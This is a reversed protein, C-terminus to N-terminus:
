KLEREVRHAISMIFDRSNLSKQLEIDIRNKINKEVEKHVFSRLDNKVTWLIYKELSKVDTKKEICKRVIEDIEDTDLIVTKTKENVSSLESMCDGVLVM